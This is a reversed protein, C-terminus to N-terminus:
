REDARASVAEDGLYAAKVEPHRRIEEPTGVTIVHGFDLVVVVKSRMLVTDVDHDILLISIAESTVLDYLTQALRESEAVDLGSLPEDLMVVSPSAALARGVEVLRCTGLPLAAVPADALAELRLLALLSGVRDDEVRRSRRWARGDVLDRWLRQRDFRIRWSLVLHERVSLGAFMEPQQFTRALGRRAREQAPQSTVEVGGLFVRGSQAPVLGSLVGLLTSKGAGNPGILGVISREPVAISVESLASVGGYTVSIAEGVLVHSETTPVKDLQGNTLVM